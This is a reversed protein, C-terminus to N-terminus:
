LLGAGLTVRHGFREIFRPAVVEDAVTALMLAGTTAGAGDGGAGSHRTYLPVVSLLLYFSASAGFVSIFRLLLPRSVLPAPGPIPAYTWNRCRCCVARRPAPIPAAM